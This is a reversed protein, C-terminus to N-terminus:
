LTLFKHNVQADVTSIRKTKVPVDHELKRKPSNIEAQKAEFDEILEPCDLNEVPEWTNDADTFGKWKLLYEVKGFRTRKEVISEVFFEGNASNNEM